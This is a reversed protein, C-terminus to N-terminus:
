AYLEYVQKLAQKASGYFSQKKNITRTFGVSPYNNEQYMLFWKEGDKSVLFTWDGASSSWDVVEIKEYGNKKAYDSYDGAGSCGTAQEAVIKNHMSYM